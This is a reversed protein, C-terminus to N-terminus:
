GWMWRALCILGAIYLAILGAVFWAARNGFNLTLSTGIKTQVFLAPDDPNYYFQGGRWCEDPTFDGIDDESSIRTVARAVIVVLAIFYAAVVTLVTWPPLYHLPLIAIMAFVTAILYAVVTAVKVAVWAPSTRRSGLLVLVCLGALFLVILTGFFPPGYVGALTKDSWGDPIGELTWHTPFRAPIRPWHARVYVAVAALIALPPLFRLAILRLDGGSDSLSAQRVGTDPAGFRRSANYALAYACSTAVGTVAAAAIIPRASVPLLIVVILSLTTWPWLRMEYTRIIRAGERGYRVGRPVTVGFLRRGHFYPLAHQILVGFSLAIITLVRPM